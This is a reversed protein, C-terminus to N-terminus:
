FAIDVIPDDKPCYIRCRGKAEWQLKLMFTDEQDTLSASAAQLRCLLAVCSSMAMMCMLAILCELM